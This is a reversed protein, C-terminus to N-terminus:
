ERSEAREEGPEYTRRHTGIRPDGSKNTLRDEDNWREDSVGYAFEQDNQHDSGDSRFGAKGGTFPPTYTRDLVDLPIDAERRTVRGPKAANGMSTTTQPAAQATASATMGSDQSARKGRSFLKTVMGAVRRLGGLRGGQTEQKPAM